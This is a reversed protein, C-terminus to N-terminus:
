GVVLADKLHVRVIQGAKSAKSSISDDLVFVLTSDFPLVDAPPPTLTPTPKPLPKPPTLYAAASGVGVSVLTLVWLSLRLGLRATNARASRRPASARKSSNSSRRAVKKDSASTSTRDM